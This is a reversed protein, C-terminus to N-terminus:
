KLRQRLEVVKCLLQETSETWTLWKYNKLKEKTIEYNKQTLNIANNFSAFEGLTFFEAENCAIEKFIPIDSAIVPVGKQLAEILPLGFGEAYSAIICAFTRQYADSLDSDTANNVMFLKTGYYPSNIIRTILADTKWGITGLILLKEVAGERWLNEFAHLVFEHGKRPEITGVMTFVKSDGWLGQPWNDIHVDDCELKASFNAGLHFYDIPVSTNSIRSKSETIFSKVDNAVTKSIAIVGDAINLAKFFCNHFSKVLNEDCFESHRIPILDYIVAVVTDGRRHYKAAATLTSMSTWFSDLLLIVDDKTLSIPQTSCYKEAGKPKLSQSRFFHVAKIALSYFFSNSRLVRKLLRIAMTQSVGLKTASPKEFSELSFLPELDTLQYFSGGRVVVPIVELQLKESAIKSHTVVERVVRQIGTRLQNNVTESVDIYIKM